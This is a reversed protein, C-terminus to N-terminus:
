TYAKISEYMRVTNSVIQIHLSIFPFLTELAHMTATNSVIQFQLFFSFLSPSHHMGIIYSVIQFHLFYKFVLVTFPANRHYIFCNSFASFGKFCPRYITCESPLKFRNQFASFFSPISYPIQFQLEIKKVHKSKILTLTLYALMRM